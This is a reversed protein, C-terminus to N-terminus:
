EQVVPGWIHKSFYKGKTQDRKEIQTVNLKVKIGRAPQEASVLAELTEDWFANIDKGDEPVYNDPDLIDMIAAAFQKVNGMCTERIDPRIMIVQSPKCGPVRAANTSELVKAEVIFCEQDKRNKIYKVADIEVTYDGPEFFLGGANTRIEGLGAFRGM